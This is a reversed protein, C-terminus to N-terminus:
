AAKQEALTAMGSDIFSRILQSYTLGRRAAEARVVLGYDERVSASLVMVRARQDEPLRPRGPGRKPTEDSMELEMIDLIM